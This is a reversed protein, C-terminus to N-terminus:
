GYLRKQEDQYRQRLYAQEGTQSGVSDGEKKTHYWERYDQGCRVSYNWDDEDPLRKPHVSYGHPSSPEISTQATDKTTTTGATNPSDFTSIRSFGKESAGSDKQVAEQQPM